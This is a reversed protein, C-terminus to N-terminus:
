SSIMPARERNDGSEAAGPQLFIVPITRTTRGAYKLYVPRLATIKKWAHAREEGELVRARAKTYLSGVRIECEPEDRLNLYWWPDVETGGRSGMVLYGNEHAVYLLPAHRQKGTRRGITTLLLTEVVGPGGVATSDWIHAKEPNTLYLRIHSRFVDVANEPLDDFESM